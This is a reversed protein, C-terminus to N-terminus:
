EKNDIIKVNVNFEYKTDNYDYVRITSTYNLPKNLYKQERLNKTTKFWVSVQGGILNICKPGVVELGDSVEIRFSDFSYPLLNNNQDLKRIILKTQAYTENIELDENLLSLDYHTQRVEEKIVTKVVKNDRIGEFLVKTSEKGWLSAYKFYLSTASDLTLHYKAMLRVMRIKNVIDVNTGHKSVAKFLKKAIDSYKKSFGEELILRDGIFDTMVIPPHKLNKFPSDNKNM